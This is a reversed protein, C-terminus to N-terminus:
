EPMEVSGQEGPVLCTASMADDHWTPLTGGALQLSWGGDSSIGFVIAAHTGRGASSTRVAPVSVSRGGGRTSGRRRRRGGSGSNKAEASRTSIYSGRGTGTSVAAPATGTSVAAPATGTSVAAPATGTSVAAAVPRLNIFPVM